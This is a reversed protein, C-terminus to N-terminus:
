GGPLDPSSAETITGSTADSATRGGGSSSSPQPELPPSEGGGKGDQGASGTATTSSTDSASADSGSGGDHGSGTATSGAAARLSGGDGSLVPGGDSGSSDRSGGGSERMFGHEDGAGRLARARSGPGSGREVHSGGRSHSAGDGAHPRTAGTSAGAQAVPIAASPPGSAQAEATAPAIGLALVAAKSGHGLHRPLPVIGTGVALVAATAALAAGKALAGGLDANGASASLEALRSATPSMRGLLGSAWLLLPQPVVAAAADRLTSRARYLLGRVAGHTVGLASAIQEHSHGDIAARLIAERQMQPLAAVDSLTQRVATRREFDSEASAAFESCAGDELPGQDRASRMANVATNHVTRYLWAKPSHVEGGRGLAIWARMLAQQVVDEARSDSLGMRRCYRLLPRRYRRVIAEFAREDGGRALALLRQDSQVLPLRPLGGPSM